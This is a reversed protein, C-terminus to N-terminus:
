RPAAARSARPVLLVAAALAAATLALSVTAEWWVVRDSSCGREVVDSGPEITQTGSMVDGPDPEITVQGSADKSYCIPDDHVILAAFAGVLLLPVVLAAVASRSGAHQHTPWRAYALLYIIGIPGFVFSHLSFPFVALVLSAVGAPLLLPGRGRLALLALVAPLGYVAALPAAGLRDGISGDSLAGLALVAVVAGLQVVACTGAATRAARGPSAPEVGTTQETHTPM